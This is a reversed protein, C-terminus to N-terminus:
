GSSVQRRLEEDGACAEQLFAQWQEPPVKVAAVFLDEKLTTVTSRLGEAVKLRRAPLPLFWQV